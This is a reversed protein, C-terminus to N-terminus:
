QDTYRQLSHDGQVFYGGLPQVWRQDHTFFHGNLTQNSTLPESTSTAQEGLLSRERGEVIAENRRLGEKIKDLQADAHKITTPSPRPRDQADGAVTEQNKESSSTPLSPDSPRSRQIRSMKPSPSIDSRTTQSLMHETGKAYDIATEESSIDKVRSLYPSGTKRLRITSSSLEKLVNQM